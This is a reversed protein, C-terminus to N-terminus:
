YEARIRYGVGRETELIKRKSNNLKKRLNKIHVDVVNSFSNFDFGWLHDLIQNRNVVQNQNRMLYELISFEKVSLRIEEEGWLVKRTSTNLSLDRVKLETPLTQQPRRLLARIRAVLEQLSFPKVLYDDAGTDLANVKDTVDFKATLMLIPLNIGQARVNKCIEVGDKKPLMWDMIVLDYEKQYLQIRREAKEADTMIDVTFGEKELCHKLSKALTVEDEVLLIRM